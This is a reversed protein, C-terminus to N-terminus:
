KKGGRVTDLKEEIRALREIVQREFVDLRGLKIESAEVKSYLVTLWAIGGLFTVVLSLPILTSETIKSVFVGM